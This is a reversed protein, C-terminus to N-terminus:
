QGPPASVNKQLQLNFAHSCISCMAAILLELSAAFKRPILRSLKAKMKKRLNLTACIDINLFSREALSAFLSNIM